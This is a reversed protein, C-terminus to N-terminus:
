NVEPLNEPLETTVRPAWAGYNRITSNSLLRESDYGFGNDGWKGYSNAYKIHWIGNRLVPRAGCIAHGKRGYVVPWGQLLASVFEDFSEIDLWETVRFLKATREWDRPYANGFGRPPFTHEFRERNAPNSVPLMGTEKLERLNSNITSGSQPSRGVRKYLSMASLEVWSKEGGQSVYVMELAQGAANSACSGEQGQDKIKQVLTEQGRIAEAAERWESRPIVESSNCFLEFNEGPKDDRYHCDGRGPTDVFYAM